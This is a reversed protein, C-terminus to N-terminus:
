ADPLSDRGRFEWGRIIELRDFRQRLMPPFPAFPAALKVIRVAAEDLVDHGSPAFIRVGSLTGDAEVVALIQLRGRINDAVAKSPYNVKGVRTVQRVWADLYFREAAGMDEGELLRGVRNDRSQNDSLRHTEAIAEILSFSSPLNRTTQSQNTALSVPLESPSIKSPDQESVQEVRENLIRNSPTTSTKSLSESDRRALQEPKIEQTIPKPEPAVRFNPVLTVSILPKPIAGDGGWTWLLMALGCHVVASVVLFKSLGSSSRSTRHLTM